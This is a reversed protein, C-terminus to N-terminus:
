ELVKVDINGSTTDIECVSECDDYRPVNVDGSTTDTIFKKPSLLTGTVSGSTSDIEISKADVRDLTIEGSTTDISIEGSANVNNMKVEGSTSEASIDKANVVSLTVSGSTSDCIIKGTVESAAIDIEGSTSEARISQAKIDALNVNGSTSEATLDKTFFAKCNMDGSTNDLVGETFTFGKEVVIDGSVTDVNLKEYEKEPLYVTMSRTRWSDPNISLTIKEYWKRKDKFDIRLTDGKVQVDHTIKNNEECEIRCKGDDSPKIEISYSVDDIEINSFKEEINYIKTEYATDESGLPDFGTAICVAMILAFGAAAATGAAILSVKVAKKM